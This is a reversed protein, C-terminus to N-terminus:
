FGSKIVNIDNDDIKDFDIESLKCTIKSEDKFDEFLVTSFFDIDNKIIWDDFIIKRIIRGRRDSWEIKYLNFNQKDIYIKTSKKKQKKSFVKIYYVERNNFNTSKLTFSQNDIEDLLDILNFFNIINVNDSNSDVDSIENDIPLKKRVLTTDKNYNLWLEIDKYDLPSNFKTHNYFFLSDKFPWYVKFDLNYNIPKTILTQQKIDVNFEINIDNLRNASKKIIDIPEM